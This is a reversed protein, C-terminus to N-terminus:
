KHHKPKLDSQRLHQSVTDSSNYFNHFTNNIVEQRVQVASEKTHLKDACNLAVNILSVMMIIFPYAESRSKPFLSSLLKFKPFKQNASSEIEEPSAGSNVQDGLFSVYDKLLKADALDSFLAFIRDALISYQGDPIRGWSGCKPCPGAQCGVFQNSSGSELDVTSPFIARCSPNACVAPLFPM